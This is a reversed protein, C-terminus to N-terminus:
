YMCPEIILLMKCGYSKCLAYYLVKGMISQSSTTGSNLLKMFVLQLEAQCQQESGGQYTM